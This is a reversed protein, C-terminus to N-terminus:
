EAPEISFHETQTTIAERTKTPSPNISTPYSLDMRESDTNEETSSTAPCPARPHPPITPTSYADSLSDIWQQVQFNNSGTTSGPVDDDDDVNLDATGAAGSLSVVRTLHWQMDLIEKSPLPHTIPDHTSLTFIHGSKVFEADNGIAIRRTPTGDLRSSRSLGSSSIAKKTIPIRDKLEHGQNPQWFLQIDLKKMDDHYHLPRFAIFGDGWMGHIGKELCILNFCHDFPKAPHQPDRFIKSEWTRIQGPSWFASLAKWFNPIRDLNHSSILCNPYIHAVDIPIEGTLACAKHDRERAKERPEAARSVRSKKPKPLDDGTSSRKQSRSCSDDTSISTAPSEQPTHQMWVRPIEHCRDAFFTIFLPDVRAVNIMTQLRELNCVQLCAWFPAPVLENGLAEGLETMLQLRRASPINLYEHDPEPGIVTGSRGRSSSM